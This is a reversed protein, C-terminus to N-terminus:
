SRAERAQLRDIIQQYRRERSLTVHVFVLLAAVVSLLFLMVIPLMAAMMQLSAADLTGEQLQRAVMFPNVLEPANLALWGFAAALMLLSLLGAAPWWRLLRRRRALMAQVELDLERM